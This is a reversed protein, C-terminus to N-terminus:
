KGADRDRKRAEKVEKTLRAFGNKIADDIDIIVLASHEMLRQMESDTAAYYEAINKYIFRIHRTAAMKLFKKQSDSVNSNEIEDILELYKWKDICDGLKVNLGQIDYQPINTKSSYKEDIEENEDGDTGEEMTVLGLKELSFDDDFGMEDFEIDELQIKSLEEKLKEMDWTSYEAVKNDAIRFANAKATSLDDAIICPIKKMGIKKAAEYRTHGTILVFNSDLVCPVKFGYERISKAVKDIAKKNNRPNNKYPKIKDISVYVIELKSM